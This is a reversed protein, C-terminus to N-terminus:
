RLLQSAASITESFGWMFFSLYKMHGNVLSTESLFFSSITGMTIDFPLYWHIIEFFNAFNKTLNM